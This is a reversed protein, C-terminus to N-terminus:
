QLSGEGLQTFFEDFDIQKLISKKGKSLKKIWTM